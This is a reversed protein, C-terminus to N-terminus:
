MLTLLPFLFVRFRPFLLESQPSKKGDHFTFLTRGEEQEPVTMYHRIVGGAMGPLGPTHILRRVLSPVAAERGQTLARTSAMAVAQGATRAM